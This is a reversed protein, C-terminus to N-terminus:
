DERRSVPLVALAECGGLWIGIAITAVLPRIMFSAHVITHQFFILYWCPVVLAAGILAATQTRETALKLRHWRAWSGAVLGLLGLVIAALGLALNGQGLVRSFYALKAALYVFAAPSYMAHQTIDIGLRSAGATEAGTVSVIPGFMRFSLASVFEGKLDYHSALQVIAIKIAFCLVFSAAFAGATAACRQIVSVSTEDAPKLGVAAVLVALALPAQGTLLEVHAIIAGFASGLRILQRLSLRVLDVWMIFILLAYVAFDSVAFSLSPGYFAIGYLALMSALLTVGFGAFSASTSGNARRLFLCLLATILAAYSAWYVTQRAARISLISVLPAIMTRGAFLYRLYLVNAEPQDRDSAIEHLYTCPGAGSPAKPFLVEDLRSEYPALLMSLVLCDNYPRMARGREIAPAVDDTLGFTDFAEAVHTRVAAKNAFTAAIGLVFFSISVVIAAAFPICVAASFPVGVRMDGGM